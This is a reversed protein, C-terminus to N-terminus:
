TASLVGAVLGTIVPIALGVRYWIFTVISHRIVFRLLWAILGCAGVFSMVVGVVIAGLGRRRRHGRPGFGGVAARGRDAGGHGLFFSMRTATVPDVDRL